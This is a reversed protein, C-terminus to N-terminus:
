KSMRWFKGENNIINSNKLSQLNNKIRNKKQTIDLVDSLKGLLVKELEVRKVTGFETLYDIIIKQIYNNEIVRMKFYDEKQNTEKAVKSSIHFNPKRGEILGKAKLIKIEEDLLIKSKSIKDLLIIENLTLNPMVALKKAYNADIVKGTINLKVKNDYFDFDPKTCNKRLIVQKKIINGLFYLLKLILM